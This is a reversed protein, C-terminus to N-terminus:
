DGMLLEYTFLVLVTSTNIQRYKSVHAQIKLHSELQMKDSTLYIERQQLHEVMDRVQKQLNIDDDSTECIARALARWEELYKENQAHSVQTIFM